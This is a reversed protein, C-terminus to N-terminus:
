VVSNSFSCSRDLDSVGHGGISTSWRGRARRHLEQPLKTSPRHVSTCVHAQGLFRPCVEQRQFNPISSWPAPALSSNNPPYGFRFSNNSVINVQTITCGHNPPKYSGVPTYPSYEAWLKGAWFPPQQEDDSEAPCLNLSLLLGVFCLLRM